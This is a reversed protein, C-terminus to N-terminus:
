IKRETARWVNLDESEKIHYIVIGQEAYKEKEEIQKFSDCVLILVINYGANRFGLLQSILEDSFIPTILILTTGWPLHVRETGIMQEFPSKPKSAVKIRALLDLIRMLHLHGKNPLISSPGTSELEALPDLGNTMLGVEQKLRYIHHSISAAVVIALESYYVSHPLDKYDNIDLNLFIVTGLSMTPEFKRVQLKGTRATAKWHIRNYSDSPIYERIGHFRSPDEYIPTYTKITGFPQRSPIGLRELPIIRPYVIITKEEADRRSWPHFGFIDSSELDLPGLTYYGRYRGTLKYSLTAESKPSVSIVQRFFGPALLQYPYRDHLKLWPLPLITNNKVNIKIEMSEGLFLRDDSLVKQCITGKQNQESWIRAFFYLGAFLYLSYYLFSVKFFLTALAVIIIFLPWHKM